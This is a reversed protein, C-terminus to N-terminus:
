SVRNEKFSQRNKAVDVDSLMDDKKARLNDLLGSISDINEGTPDMDALAIMPIGITSDSEEETVANSVARNRLGKIKTLLAYCGELALETMVHCEMSTEFNRSCWRLLENRAVSDAITQGEKADVTRGERADVKRKLHSLVHGNMGGFMEFMLYAHYVDESRVKMFQGDNASSSETTSNDNENSVEATHAWDPKQPVGRRMISVSRQPIAAEPGAPQMDNMEIAASHSPSSAHGSDSESATSGDDEDYYEEGDSEEEDDDEDSDELRFYGDIIDFRMHEMEDLIRCYRGFRSSRKTLLYLTVIEGTADPGRIRTTDSDLSEPQAQYNRPNKSPAVGM